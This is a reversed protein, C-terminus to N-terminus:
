AAGVAVSRLLGPVEAAAAPRAFLYGQGLQCGMQHLRRRQAINEIGEAVTRLDLAAALQVIGEVLRAKRADYVVDDVFEKAIKLEDVPFRQLYGLSSFGTGFDDIAIRMGHARLEALRASVGEVDEMLTGETIELTLHEPHLGSEHLAAGIRARLMPQLIQRASLNVNASLSQCGPITVQWERVQRCARALVWHGLDGILGTEEALPVFESPSIPGRVPHTWRLLAEVGLTEGTALAVIPQYHLELEESLFANELEAKLSLRTLAAEHMQPDYLEYRSGGNRKAQYMAVDANRLLDGSSHDPKGFAIGISARPYVQAGGIRVPVAVAELVRECLTAAGEVGNTNELLIAFEDGGLRAPTDSGRMCGRLRAALEVLVEDGAEHGLSDNITKFDDVDLFLVAVDSGSRAARELAHAVRNTLLARNPLGTLTDHFAQHTLQDALARRESIDRATLVLGNVATDGLLDRIVGEFTPWTGNRHRLRFEHRVTGERQADEGLRSVTGDLEDPHLKENLRTGVLENSEYGLLASVSPTVYRITLDPELVAILDNSNQVLSRFREESRQELLGDAIELGELALAIRGALTDLSQQLHWPLPRMGTVRVVGQLRDRLVIPVVLTRAAGLRALSGASRIEGRLSAAIEGAGVVAADGLELKPRSTLDVDVYAEHAGGALEIAARAAARRIEEHTKAVAFAAAVSRLVAEQRGSREYGVVIGALRVAILVVLLISAVPVAIPLHGDTGFTEVSIMVLVALVAPALLALRRRTLVPESRDHPETLRPMRPHLAAAAWLVQALLLALLVPSAATLGDTAVAHAYAWGAAVQVLAALGVLVHAPEEAGATLLLRVAIGLLGAGAAVYGIVLLKTLDLGQDDVAPEVVAVWMLCLAGLTVIGADVIAAWDRAATSHRVVVLLALALLPYAALRMVDIAQPHLPEGALEAHALSAIAAVAVCGPALAVLYWPRRELPRNVRVGVLVAAIAGLSIGLTWLDIARADGRLLWFSALALGGCALFALVRNM